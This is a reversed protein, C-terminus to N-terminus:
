HRTLTYNTDDDSFLKIINNKAWLYLAKPLHMRDSYYGAGGWDYAIHWTRRFLSEAFSTYNWLHSKLVLYRGYIPAPHISEIDDLMEYAALISGYEGIEQEEFTNYSIEYYGPYLKFIRRKWMEDLLHEEVQWAFTNYTLGLPRIVLESVESHEFDWTDIELKFYSTKPM